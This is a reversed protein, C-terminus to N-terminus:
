RRFSRTTPPRGPWDPGPWELPAQLGYGASLDMRVVAIRSAPGPVGNQLREGSRVSLNVVANSRSLRARKWHVPLLWFHGPPHQPRTEM